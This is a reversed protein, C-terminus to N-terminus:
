FYRTNREGHEHWRVKSRLITGNTKYQMIIKLRSRAAHNENIIQKNNLHTEAKQYLENIQKQLHIELSKRQKAQNKSYKVTFGRIEMKILDWKLSFDNVDKYKQQFNPIEARLKTVYTEDKLSQNFMWFGPGRKHKLEESKIHILIAWHDTEPAYLIKCKDTSDNLTKSILFFDLRCQIKFSKNRWTFEEAEPNLVRWIDNLDYLNCLKKIEEVVLNKRNSNNGGRRDKEALTYNFDGGIVIIEEPFEQLQQQIEKFFSM